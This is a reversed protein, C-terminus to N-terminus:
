RSIRNGKLEMMVFLTLHVVLVGVITTSSNTSTLGEAGDNGGMTDLSGVVLEMWITWYDAGDSKFTKFYDLGDSKFTKLYDVGDGKSLKQPEIIWVM